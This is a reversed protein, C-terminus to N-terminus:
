TLFSLPLVPQTYQPFTVAPQQPDRAFPEVTLSHRHLRPDLVAVISGRGRELSQRGTRLIERLCYPGQHVVIGLRSSM